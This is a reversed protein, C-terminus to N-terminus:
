KWTFSIAASATGCTATLTYTGPTTGNAYSKVNAFVYTGASPNTPVYNNKTPTSPSTRSLTCASGTTTTVTVTIAQPDTQPSALNTKLIVPKPTPKPTPKKTPKPTPKKTPKPTPKKTPTPTPTPSPTASKAKTPDTGPSLSAGHTASGAAAILGPNHSGSPGSSPSTGVASGFWVMAIILALVTYFGGFALWFPAVRRKRRPNGDADFDPVGVLGTQPQLRENIAHAPITLIRGLGLIIPLIVVALAAGVVVAGTRIALVTSAVYAFPRSDRFGHAAAAGGTSTATSTVSAPATNTAGSALAANTADAATKGGGFRTALATRASHIPPGAKDALASGAALLVGLIGALIAAIRKKWGPAPEKKRAIGENSFLPAVAPVEEVAAVTEEVPARVIGPVEPPPDPRFYNTTPVVGRPPVGPAPSAAGPSALTFTEAAPADDEPHHARTIGPVNPPAPPRVYNTTPVPRKAIRPKPVPTAVIRAASIGAQAAPAVPAAAISTTVTPSAVVPAAVVPAAVIQDAVVSTAAGPADAAADAAAKAIRRNSRGANSASTAAIAASVAAVAAAAAASAAAV